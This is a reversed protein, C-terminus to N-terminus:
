NIIKINREMRSCHQVKSSQFIRGAATIYLRVRSTFFHRILLYRQLYCLYQLGVNIQIGAMVVVAVSELRSLADIGFSIQVKEVAKVLVAFVCVCLFFLFVSSDTEAAGIVNYM